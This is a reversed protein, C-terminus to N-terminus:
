VLIRVSRVSSGATISRRESGDGELLRDDVHIPGAATLEVRRGKGIRYAAVDGEGTALWWAFSERQDNRVGVLTLPEDDPRQTPALWLAPGFSPTRMGVVMVYRGERREGDVVTEADLVPGGMIEDLLRRRAGMLSALPLRKKKGDDEVLLRAFAGAGIVELFPLCEAGASACEIRLTRETGGWDHVRAFPDAGPSHGFARAVNNATGLPLIALRQGTGALSLALKHVTGDGGAAVFADAPEDLHDRWEGKSSVMEPAHGAARLREEIAGKPWGQAGAKPNYVVTLRV